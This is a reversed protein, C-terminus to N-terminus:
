GSPRAKPCGLDGEGQLGLARTGGTAVKLGEAALEIGLAEQCVSELLGPGFERHVEIACKIIRESLLDYTKMDWMGALLLVSRAGRRRACILANGAQTDRANATLEGDWDTLTRLFVM